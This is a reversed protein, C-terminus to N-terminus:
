SLLPCEPFHNLIHEIGRNAQPGVIIRRPQIGPCFDEGLIIYRKGDLPGYINKPMAIGTLMDAQLRPSPYALIRFEREDKFAPHKHAGCYGMIKTALIYHPWNFGRYFYKRILTEIRSDRTMLLINELFKLGIQMKIKCFSDSNEDIGYTVKTANIYLYSRYDSEANVIREIEPLHFQLCYGENRTYRDWLTLNGNPEPGM